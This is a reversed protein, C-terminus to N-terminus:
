NTSVVEWVGDPQMCATGYARESRGGITVTQQFERCYRGSTTTGDRTTIVEGSAGGENWYIPEGVPAQSARIQATEHARQQSESLLDLVGLTIATLALWKFAEDDRVFYGYGPYWHGYPRMVVVPGYHRRRAPPVVLVRGKYWYRDKRRNDWWDARRDRRDQRWDRRDDRRDQRWERRDDRQDQRWERRDDRRDQRWERRDDRRDARSDALQPSAGSLGTRSEAMAAGAPLAFLGLGVVGLLLTKIKKKM